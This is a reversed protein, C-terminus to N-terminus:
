RDPPAGVLTEPRSGVECSVTRVAGDRRLEFEITKGLAANVESLYGATSDVKRGAVGTLTDGRRVGCRDAPSARVVAIVRLGEREEEAGSEASVRDQVFAGVSPAQASMVWFTAGLEDCRPGQPRTHAVPTRRLSRRSRLASRSRDCPRKYSIAVRAGVERAVEEIEPAGQDVGDFFVLGVMRHGSELMRADDNRRDGGTVIQVPGPGVVIGDEALTRGHLNDQYHKRYLNGACAPVALLAAAAFVLRTSRNAM